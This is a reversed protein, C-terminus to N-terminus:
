LGGATEFTSVPEVGMVNLLTIRFNDAEWENLKNCLRTYMESRKQKQEAIIERLSKTSIKTRYETITQNFMRIERLQSILEPIMVDFDHIEGMLEVTNKVEELCASFEKSFATEGAEMAYRLPKGTIRMRHLTNKALPKTVVNNKYSMLEDFMMPLINQINEKLSLKKKVPYLKAM